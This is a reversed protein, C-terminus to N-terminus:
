VNSGVLHQLNNTQLCKEFEAANEIKALPNKRKDQKKTFSTIESRDDIEIGRESLWSQLFSVKEENNEHSHLEEYSLEWYKQGSNHLYLEIRSYFSMIDFYWAAFDLCDINVKIESTDHQQSRKTIDLIRDSIYVDLLNRKLIVKIIDENALINQKLKHWRLHEPFIKFGTYKYESSSAIFDLLYQPNKHNLTVLERDERPKEGVEVEIGHKNKLWDAYENKKSMPMWVSQNHYVEGFFEMNSFGDLVKMLYNSGTRRCAILAIIKSNM